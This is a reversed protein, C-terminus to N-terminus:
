KNVSLKSIQNANFHTKITPSKLFNTLLKNVRELSEYVRASSEKGFRQTLNIKSNEKSNSRIALPSKSFKNVDKM